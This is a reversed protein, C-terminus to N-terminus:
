STILHLSGRTRSVLCRVLDLRGTHETNADTPMAAEAYLCTHVRSRALVPESQGQPVSEQCFSTFMMDAQALHRSTVRAQLRVLCM